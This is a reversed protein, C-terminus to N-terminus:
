LSVGFQVDKNELQEIREELELIYNYLKDFKENTELEDYDWDGFFDKYKQEFFHPDYEAM